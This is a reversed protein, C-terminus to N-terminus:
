RYNIRISVILFNFTNIFFLGINGSSHLFKFSKMNNFSYNAYHKICWSYDVSICFAIKTYKYIVIM